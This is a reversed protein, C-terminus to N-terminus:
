VWWTGMTIGLFKLFEFPYQARIEMELGLRLNVQGIKVKHLKKQWAYGFLVGILYTPFRSWPSMYVLRMYDDMYDPDTM